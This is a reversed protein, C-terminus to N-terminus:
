QSRFYKPVHKNTIIYTFNVFTFFYTDHNGSDGRKSGPVFQALDIGNNTIEATQNSLAAAVPGRAAKIDDADVYTKSVDDIYDSFTWRWGLELGIKYLNPKHTFVLELGAPYVTSIRNYMDREPYQQLGQGETGLPQLAYWKGQYQAKPNFHILGVGAFGYVMIQKEQKNRLKAANAFRIVNQFGTRGPFKYLLIEGYVSLEILHSKFHLNRLNRAYNSSLSDAGSIRGYILNTRVALFPNVNYRVYAGFSGGILKWQLDGIFPRGEKEDGGMEGLFSATGLLAGFEFKTEEQAYSSGYALTFIWIFIFKRM